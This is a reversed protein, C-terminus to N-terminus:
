DAAVSKMESLSEGGGEEADVSTEGGGEYRAALGIIEANKAGVSLAGVLRAAISAVSTGEALSMLPL